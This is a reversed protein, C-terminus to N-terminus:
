SKEAPIHGENIGHELIWEVAEAVSDVVVSAHATDDGDQYVGTRVLVGDWPRGAGRANFAGQMDSRPNDGVMYFHAPVADGKAAATIMLRKEALMQQPVEPKGYINWRGSTRAAIEEESLGLAALRKEYLLRLTAVYAGQGFRSHAFAEKWLLDNNSFYIPVQEPALEAAQPNPSLLVDTVLQLAPWFQDGPDAVVLVGAFTEWDKPDQPGKRKDTGFPDMEPHRALYDMLHVAKEFGMAKAVHRVKDLPEGVVLVPHDKLEELEPFKSYALVMQSTSIEPAPAGPLVERKHGSCGCPELPGQLKKTLELAYEEETRGGGGNTLFVYPVGRKDLEQLAWLAEACTKKGQKIVGDIDFAVGITTANTAPGSSFSRTLSRQRLPRRRQTAQGQQQAQSETATTSAGGRLQQAAQWLCTRSAAAAQRRTALMAALLIVWLATRM